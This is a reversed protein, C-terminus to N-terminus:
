QCRMFATKYFEKTDEISNNRSYLESVDKDAAEKRANNIRSLDTMYTIYCNNQM